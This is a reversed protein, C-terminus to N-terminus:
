PVIQICRMWSVTMTVAAAAGTLFAITPTMYEATPINTVAPTGVLADNVYFKLATGDWTWELVYDTAATVLLAATATETSATEIVFNCATTEDIKRFYIGDTLGAIATTDTIALGVLFDNQTAASVQFKCGFYIRNAATPLFAEGLAQLQAGDNEAGATTILMAGGLNGAVLAHTSLNVLTTTYNGIANAAIYPTNVFDELVQNVDPGVARYWRFPYVSDAWVTNRGVTTKEVAM